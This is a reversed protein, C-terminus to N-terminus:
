HTDNETSIVTGGMAILTSRNMFSELISRSARSFFSMIFYSCDNLRVKFIRNDVNEADAAAVESKSIENELLIFYQIPLCSALDIVFWGKLYNVAIKGSRDERTGNKDEFATFFNLVLDQTRGHLKARDLERM